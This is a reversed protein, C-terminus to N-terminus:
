PWRIGDFFAQAAEPQPREAYVVAHLLETAGSPLIRAAWVADASVARGDARRGEAQVRLAEPLPTAGPPTFPQRAPAGGAQMHALTAQQWGALVPGPARGAPLTAAMLAFTAGGAESGAVTLETPEGGLPVSRTTRDPKCPLLALASHPALGVERWNLAPTCALLGGLTLVACFM